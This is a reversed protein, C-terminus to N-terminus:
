RNKMNILKKIMDSMDALLEKTGEIERGFPPEDYTRIYAAATNILKEAKENDQTNNIEKQTEGWIEELDDELEVQLSNQRVYSKIGPHKKSCFITEEDMWGVALGTYVDQMWCIFDYETKGTTMYYIMNQCVTVTNETMSAACIEAFNKVKKDPCTRRTADDLMTAIDYSILTTKKDITPKYEIFPTDALMSSIFKELKTKNIKKRSCLIIDNPDKGWVITTHTNLDTIICSGPQFWLGYPHTYYLFNQKARNKGCLEEIDCITVTQKSITSILDAIYQKNFKTQKM